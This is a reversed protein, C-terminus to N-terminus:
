VEGAITKLRWERAGIKLYRAGNKLKEAEIAKAIKLAKKAKELQSGFTEFHPDKM